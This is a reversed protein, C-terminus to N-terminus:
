VRHAGFCLTDEVSISERGSEYEYVTPELFLSENAVIRHIHSQRGIGLLSINNHHLLFKFRPSLKYTEKCKLCARGLYM